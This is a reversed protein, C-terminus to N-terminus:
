RTALVLTICALMLVMTGFEKALVGASWTELLVLQDVM